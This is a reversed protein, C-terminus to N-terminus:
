NADNSGWKLVLLADCVLSLIDVKSRQLSTTVERRTFERVKSGFIRLRRARVLGLLTLEDALDDTDCTSAEHAQSDM